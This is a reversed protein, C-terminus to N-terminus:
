LKPIHVYIEPRPVNTKFIKATRFESLFKQQQFGRRVKVRVRLWIYKVVLYNASQMNFFICRITKRCFNKMRCLAFNRLRTKKVVFVNLAFTESITNKIQSIVKLIGRSIM